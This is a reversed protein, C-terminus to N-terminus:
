EIVKPVLYLGEEVQPAIAQFKERQNAETVVDPRLRQCADLPHAMPQVRSTEVANMQTVLNLIDSLNQAYRPVDAEEIDLRALHAIREIDGRKLTTV